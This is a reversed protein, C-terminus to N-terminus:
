LADAAALHRSSLLAVRVGRRPQGAGHEVSDAGSPGPVQGVGTSPGKRVRRREPSSLARRRHRLDQLRASSTQQMTMYISLSSLAVASVQREVGVACACSHSQRGSQWNGAPWLRQRGVVVPPERFDSGARPRLWM